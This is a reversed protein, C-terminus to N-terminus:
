DTEENSPTEEESRSLIKRGRRILWSLISRFIAALSEHTILVLVSAITLIAAYIIWETYNKCKYVNEIVSEEDITCISYIKTLFVESYFDFTKNETGNYLVRSMEIGNVKFSPWEFTLRNTYSIQYIGYSKNKVLWLEFNGNKQYFYAHDQDGQFLFYESANAKLDVTFKKFNTLNIAEAIYLVFLVFM